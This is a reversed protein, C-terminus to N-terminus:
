LDSKSAAEELVELAEDSLTLRGGDFKVYPLVHGNKDIISAALLSPQEHAEEFTGFAQDFLDLQYEPKRGPWAPAIEKGCIHCIYHDTEAALLSRYNLQSDVLHVEFEMVEAFLETNGCGPCHLEPESSSKKRNPAESKM